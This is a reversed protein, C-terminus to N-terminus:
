SALGCYVRKRTAARHPPLPTLAAHDLGSAIQLLYDLKQELLLPARRQIVQDLDEGELYEEVLFPVDDQIGFDHVTTINPHVLNGAIEAERYFRQRATEDRSTCIKIAVPRKLHPDFAEYVLGYSGGGIRRILEYKGLKERM